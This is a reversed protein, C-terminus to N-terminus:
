RPGGGSADDMWARWGAHGLRRLTQINTEYIDSAQPFAQVAQAIRDERLLHLTPYPARNTYNTIDDPETGAFQFQPHFSALQITGELGERQLLRDAEALFGTFEIFDHLANPAIL